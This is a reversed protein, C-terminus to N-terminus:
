KEREEREQQEKTREEALAKEVLPLLAPVDEQVTKWVIQLDVGHYEHILKDRMGAIDRWPIDPHKARVDQPIRKAAEGLVELSRIVANVTKRDQLFEEFSMGHTFDLVELVSTRMDELYDLLTRKM